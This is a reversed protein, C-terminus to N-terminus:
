LISPEEGEEGKRRQDTYYYGVMKMFFFFSFYNKKKTSRSLSLIGGNKKRRRRFIIFCSSCIKFLSTNIVATNRSFLFCQANIADNWCCSTNRRDIFFINYKYLTYNNTGAIPKKRRVVHFFVQRVFALAPPTRREYSLCLGM